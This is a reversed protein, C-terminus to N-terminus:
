SRVPRKAVGMTQLQAESVEYDSDVLANGIAYLDYNKMPRHPFPELSTAVSSWLASNLPEPHTTHGSAPMACVPPPRNLGLEVPFTM